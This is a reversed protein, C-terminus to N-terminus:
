QARPSFQARPNQLFSNRRLDDREIGLSPAGWPYSGVGGGRDGPATATGSEENDMGRNVEIALPSM